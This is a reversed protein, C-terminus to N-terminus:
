TRARPRPSPHQQERLPGAGPDHAPGVLLGRAPHEALRLRLMPFRSGPEGDPIPGHERGRLRERARDDVGLRREGREVAPQGSRDRGDPERRPDRAHPLERERRARERAHESLVHPAARAAAFRRRRLRDAGLRREHGLPHRGPGLRLRARDGGTSAGESRRARRRQVAVGVSVLDAWEHIREETTGLERAAESADLRAEVVALLVEYRSRESM